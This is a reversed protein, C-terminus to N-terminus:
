SPAVGKGRRSREIIALLRVLAFGLGPCYYKHGACEALTDHINSPCCNAAMRNLKAKPNSISNSNPNPNLNVSGLCMIGQCRRQKQRQSLRRDLQIHGPLPGLAGPWGALWGLADVTKRARKKNAQRM